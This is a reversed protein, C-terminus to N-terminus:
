PRPLQRLHAVAAAVDQAISGLQTQMVHPMYEFSEDRATLGATRGFYDIAIAEIGAVAFREALEKYFQFLGRVDPLIVIGAGNPAEARALYAAFQTGDQSTLVLSQGSTAGGGSLGPKDDHHRYHLPLDPPHADYAFCM